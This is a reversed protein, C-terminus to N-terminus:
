SNFRLNMARWMVVDVTGIRDGTIDAVYRCMKQVDNFEFKKMLRVLHRDPKAVDMGLNRALHYKTIEGIMPLTDLFEVREMDTSCNLLSAWWEGFKDIAKGIADRKYPHGISKLDCGSKCFTEYMKEAIQNKMGVNFVCYVYAELFGISDMDKFYRTQVAKIEWEFGAKIVYERADAYFGIIEPKM